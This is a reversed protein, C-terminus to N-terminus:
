MMVWLASNCSILCYMRSLGYLCPLSTDMRYSPPGFVPGLISVCPECRNYPRPIPPHHTPASAGGEDGITVNYFFRAVQLPPPHTSSPHPRKRRGRGKGIHSTEVNSDYRNNMRYFYQESQTALAACAGGSGMWVVGAGVDHLLRLM